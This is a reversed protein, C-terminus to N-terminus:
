RREARAALAADLERLARLHLDAAAPEGAARQARVLLYRVAPDRPALAVAGDLAAVAEATRGAELLAHGLNRLPLADGPLLGAAERFLPAAADPSGAELLRAGQNALAQGLERRADTSAPDLLLARRLMVIAEAERQQDRRLMGLMLAADSLAPFARVYAEFLVDAEEYRKQRVLLSGLNHYPDPREPRLKMAAHFHREAELLRPSGAQAVGALVAGLNNHCTACEPQARVAARWLNESSLWIETQRWAASGWGAVILIAAATAAAAPVPGLQGRHWRDIVWTLGSGALLAFGLGSLYSYRDHVLHHGAHVAGSVPALVIASHVWATLGAPFARRLAVLVGTVATVALTPGLFTWQFADVRAPLEYLPSLGVPWALRSPYFWLSYSVMASRAGPGYVDYGTWAAGWSVAIVAVMAGIGAVTAHPIKERLVAKWGLRRWRGLPYIDLLLLTLPLTMAMAKSLLAAVLAVLSLIQWKGAIRKGGDSGRLYALVALLYFFGCLVDRRETIWAVSEARLPHVGFALAAMAAGWTIGATQRGAGFAAALLWRAVLFALGANVAHLLVNALHYGRPHMGDVAYNIGFTLWTLPIYHGLLTSSFMWRLQDWQFGRYGQNSLFNAPDDWNVFDARLSPLFPVAAAAAIGLPVLRLLSGRGTV